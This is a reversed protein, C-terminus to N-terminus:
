DYDYLYVIGTGRIENGRFSRGSIDMAAIHYTGSVNLYYNFNLLSSGTHFTGGFPMMWRQEIVDVVNPGIITDPIRTIAMSNSVVYRIGAIPMNQNPDYSLITARAAAIDQLVEYDSKQLVAQWGLNRANVTVIYYNVGGYTVLHFDMENNPFTGSEEVYVSFFRGEVSNTINSWFLGKKMTKTKLYIGAGSVGYDQQYFKTDNCYHTDTFLTKQYGAAPVTFSRGWRINGNADKGFLTSTTPAYEHMFIDTSKTRAEQEEAAKLSFTDIFYLGDVGQVPFAYSSRETYPLQVEEGCLSFLDGNESLQRIEDANAAPGILTGQRGVKLLKDEFVVEGAPNLVSAFAKSAIAWDQDEYGATKMTTEAYSIFGEEAKTEGGKWGDIANTLASLSAFYLPAVVTRLDEEELALHNSSEIKQCSAISVVMAGIIIIKKHKM